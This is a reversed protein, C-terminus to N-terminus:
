FQDPDIQDQLELKLVDLIKVMGKPVFREVKPPKKNLM